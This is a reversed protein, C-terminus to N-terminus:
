LAREYLGYYPDAWDDGYVEKLLSLHKTPADNKISQLFTIFEESNRASFVKTRFGVRDATPNESLLAHMERDVFMADCYPLLVSVMRIDTEMGRGSAKKQGSAARWALGAYLLSSINIFPVSALEASLFYKTAKEVAGSHDTVDRGCEDLVMEFLQILFPRPIGPLLDEPQPSREGSIVARRRALDAIYCRVIEPGFAAVEDRYVDDFSLQPDQQWTRFTEEFQVHNEDRETRLGDAVSRTRSPKVSVLFRDQWAHPNRGFIESRAHLVGSAIRGSLWERAHDLVQCMRIWDDDKFQVGSSLIEYMRTLLPQDPTVYSEVFHFHSHPCCVLQMKTAVSLNEYVSRWRKRFREDTSERTRPDLVKMMNSIVLQDLYVIKKTLSPLPLAAVDLDQGPYLCNRCRRYCRNQQIM